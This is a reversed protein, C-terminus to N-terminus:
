NSPFFIKTQLTRAKISEKSVHYMPAVKRWLGRSNMTQKQTQVRTKDSLIYNDKRQHLASTM